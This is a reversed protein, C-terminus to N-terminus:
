LAETHGNKRKKTRMRQMDRDLTVFLRHLDEVQTEKAQKRVCLNMHVFRFGIMNADRAALSDSLFQELVRLEPCAPPGM